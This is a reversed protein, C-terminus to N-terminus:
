PPTTISPPRRGQNAYAIAVRIYDTQIDSEDIGLTRFVAIIEKM